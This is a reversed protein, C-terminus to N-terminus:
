SRSAGKMKSHREHHKPLLSHHIHPIVGAQAITVGNLLVGLEEDNRVALQIHRPIIRSKKNDRAANGALELIEATLYEMVATLYVPAGIGLRDSYRGKRLMRAVRSVPFTLGARSSKTKRSSNSSTNTPTHRAKSSVRSNPKVDQERPTARDNSGQTNQNQKQGGRGSAQSGIGESAADDGRNGRASQMEDQDQDPTLVQSIIGAIARQVFLKVSFNFLLIFIFFFFDSDRLISGRQDCPAFHATATTLKSKYSVTSNLMRFNFEAGSQSGSDGHQLSSAFCLPFTFCLESAEDLDSSCM